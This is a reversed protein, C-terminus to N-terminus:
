REKTLFPTMQEAPKFLFCTSKKPLLTGKLAANYMSSVSPTKIKVQLRSTQYTSKKYLSSIQSDAEILNESMITEFGNFKEMVNLIHAYRLCSNDHHRSNGQDNIKFSTQLDNFLIHYDGQSYPCSTIGSKKLHQHFALWCFNKNIRAILDFSEVKAQTTHTIFVPLPLSLGQHHLLRKQAALRHHGDAIMFHEITNLCLMLQRAYQINNVKIFSHTLGNISASYTPPYQEFWTSLYQFPFHKSQTVLFCPSKIPKYTMAQVLESVHYEDVKEHPFVSPNVHTTSLNYYCSIGISKHYSKKFQGSIQYILLHPLYFSNRYATKPTHTNPKINLHFSM